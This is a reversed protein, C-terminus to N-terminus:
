IARKLHRTLGQKLQVALDAKSADIFQMQNFELPIDLVNIPDIAIPILNKRAAGIRWERRCWDSRFSVFSWCAVMADAKRTAEDLVEAFHDGASLGELDFFVSVGFAEIMRRLPLVRELESRAYSFFVENHGTTQPKNRQVSAAGPAALPAAAPPPASPAKVAPPVAPPSEKSQPTASPSSIIRTVPAASQAAKVRQKLEKEQEQAKKKEKRARGADDDLWNSSGM